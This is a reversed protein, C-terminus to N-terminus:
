LLQMQLSNCLGMDKHLCFLYPLMFHSSARFRLMRNQVANKIFTLFLESRFLQKIFYVLKNIPASQFILNCLHVLRRLTIPRSVGDNIHEFYQNNLKQKIPAIGSQNLGNHHSNMLTKM